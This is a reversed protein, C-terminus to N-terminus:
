HPRLLPYKADGTRILSSPKAGRLAENFFERVVARSSAIEDAGNADLHFAPIVSLDSVSMHQSGLLTIRLGRPTHQLYDKRERELTAALDGKAFFAANEAFLLMTPKQTAWAVDTLGPDLSAIASVRPDSAIIESANAGGSHGFAGVRKMDIRHYFPGNADNNWMPMVDLLYRLDGVWMNFDEDASRKRIRGDPMRVSAVFGDVVLGAVVYGQSAMEETLAGYSTPYANNGPSFLLLPFPAAAAVVPADSVATATVERIADMDGQPSSPAERRRSMMTLLDESANPMLAEPQWAARPGAKPLAPYWVVVVLERKGDARASHTDTRSSDVLHFVRRGVAYPGSTVPLTHTNANAGQAGVKTAGLAFLTFWLV